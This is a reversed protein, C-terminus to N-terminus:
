QPGRGNPKANGTRLLAWRTVVPGLVEFVVTSGLAIPLLVEQFQSFEQSAILAMGIAIGAQPLLTPGMWRRTPADAHCLWGGLEAGVLRGLIRLLVYGAALLGAQQLADVQLSAGALLFFIILFPWEIGEIARFPRDHHKATNAVVVGLIMSSLIYSVGLWEAVGACLLVIGLAEAQTPEGPRIRGTLYAMPVGLLLGLMVAGGIEWLGTSLVDAIGHHGGLAHVFALILSFLLLGWADDIAVIGLLTDTFRGKAKSEHVVDLTAAPDTATAIGALLLALELPVGVLWLGGFVLAITLLIVALSIVLVPKGLKGLSKRTLNQGLLFGIMTLSINTLVPFWQITFQPLWDLVSPGITFGALLLLTVRPLPTRRGVLDAVLGILFLGGFTVLVTAIPNPEVM